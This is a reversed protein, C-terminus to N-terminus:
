PQDILDVENKQDYGGAGKKQGDKKKLGNRDGRLHRKTTETANFLTVIALFVLLANLM